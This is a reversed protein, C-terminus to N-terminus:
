LRRCSRQSDCGFTQKQRATHVMYLCDLKCRPTSSIIRMSLTKIPNYEYIYTLVQESGLLWLWYLFDLVLVGTACATSCSLSPGRLGHKISVAGGASNALMKPIFHPLVKRYGGTNFATLTECTDSFGGIGSGIQSSFPFCFNIDASM